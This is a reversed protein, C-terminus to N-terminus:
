EREEVEKIEVVKIEINADDADANVPNSNLYDLLQVYLANAYSFTMGSAYEFAAKESPQETKIKLEEKLTFTVEFNPM